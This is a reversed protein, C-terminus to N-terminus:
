GRSLTERVRSLTEPTIKLFSAIMKLPFLQLLEPKNDLIWQYKQAPSFRNDFFVLRSASREFIKGLQLFAPSRGILYHLSQIDLELVTSATFSKIFSESPNQSTFSNINLFWDEPIFLDLINVDDNNNQYQYVAGKVLFSISRCIEGPQLLSEGAGPERVKTYREFLEADVTNYVGNTKLIDAFM